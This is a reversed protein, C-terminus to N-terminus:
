DTFKITPGEILGHVQGAKVRERVEDIHGMRRLTPWSLAANFLYLGDAGAQRLTLWGAEYDLPGCTPNVPRDKKDEAPTPDHINKGLPNSDHDRTATWRPYCKTSTGRTMQIYKAWNPGEPMIIDFYGAKAWRKVDIGQVDLRQDPRVDVKLHHKHFGSVYDSEAFTAALLLKRGKKASVQDVMKRMAQCFTAMKGVKDPEDPNFYVCHRTYDLTFGDVDYHELIYRVVNVYHDHIEPQAFDLHRGNKLVWKSLARYKEGKHYLASMRLTPLM